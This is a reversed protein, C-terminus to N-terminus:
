STKRRNKKSLVQIFAKVIAPDFQSGSCRKLEELAYKRSFSKRYPRRSIMADFADAVAIIRGILPIREKKLGDPYGKGDFREHHSRIAPLLERVEEIYGLIEGAIISHTQITHYEEPTLRSPKLLIEESIGIKGIDHLLAALRITGVVDENMGIARGIQTSYKTVRDSHGKTYRDKAEIAQALSRVTGMFMRQTKDFLRANQISVATQSAIAMLLQADAVSFSNNKKNVAEIVGIVKDKTILPVAILSKTQFGSKRDVLNYFRKDHTVDEILAPKRNRIVWSAVGKGVPVRIKKLLDRKRGAVTFFELNRGEDDLLLVSAGQSGMVKRAEIILKQVLTNLDLTSNALATTKILISLENIKEEHRIFLLYNDLIMYIQHALADLFRHDNVTFLPKDKKNLAILYGANQGHFELSVAMYTKVNQHGFVRNSRSPTLRISKGWVLSPRTDTKLVSFRKKVPKYVFGGSLFNFHGPYLVFIFYGCSLIDQVRGAISKLTTVLDAHYPFAQLVEELMDLRKSQIVLESKLYQYEAADVLVKNKSM